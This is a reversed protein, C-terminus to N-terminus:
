RLFATFIFISCLSFLEKLVKIEKVSAFAIILIFFLQAYLINRM